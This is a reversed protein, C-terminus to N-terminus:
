WSKLDSEETVNWDLNLNDSISAPADAIVPKPSNIIGVDALTKPLAHQQLQKDSEERTESDLDLSDHIWIWVNVPILRTMKIDTVLL